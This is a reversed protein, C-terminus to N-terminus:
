LVDACSGRLSNSCAFISIASNFRLSYMASISRSRNFFSSSNSLLSAKRLYFLAIQVYGDTVAMFFVTIGYSGAAADKMYGSVCEVVPKGSLQGLSLFLIFTNCVKGFLDM